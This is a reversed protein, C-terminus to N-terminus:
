ATAVSPNYMTLVKIVTVSPVGTRWGAVAVCGNCNRTYPSKTVRGIVTGGDAHAVFKGDAGVSVLDDAALDGTFMDTEVEVSPMISIASIQPTPADVTPTGGVMASTLDDGSKLSIWVNAGPTTADGADAAGAIEWQEDSNLKLLTGREIDALTVGDAVVASKDMQSLSPYNNKINLLM